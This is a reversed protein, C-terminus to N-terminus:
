NDATLAAKDKEYTDRYEAYYEEVQESSLGLLRAPKSGALDLHELPERDGIGLRHCFRDALAVVSSLLILYHDTEPPFDLRHHYLIATVLSEPFNWKKVVMAGVDDHRFTFASEEAEEFFIGENYCRQMVIQFKNPDLSNMITKGIDHLLGALFAEEPNAKRSSTAIIRSALAAGLSHDWLMKETLGFPKYVEKVSAAVVLSRLTNFGLVVIAGSITQIQRQCGYFASNAIKLVRAAVAPDTTVVKAIDEVTINDMEIMQMVKTAVIPITPLDGAAMIAMELEKNM